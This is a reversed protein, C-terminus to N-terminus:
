NTGPDDHQQITDWTREDLVQTPENCGGSAILRPAGAASSDYVRWHDAIPRYLELFNTLGRAHRRVVVEPPVSHGGALVRQEVRVKAMAATPLWLFMVHVRYGTERLERLWPAFTRSALTSEFAFSARQSGLERLRELMIRGALLASRSPEFGSLGQAITDANVFSDVALTDRLLTPAITSKGAGNPGGLVIVNPM